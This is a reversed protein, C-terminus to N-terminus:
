FNIIKQIKPIENLLLSLSEILSFGDELEGGNTMEFDSELMDALDNSNITQSLDELAEEPIPEELDDPNDLFYKASKKLIHIDRPKMRLVAKIMETHPKKAKMIDKTTKKGIMDLTPQVKEEPPPLATQGGYMQIGASNAPIQETEFRPQYQPM